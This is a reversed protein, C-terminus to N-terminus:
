TCYVVLIAITFHNLNQTKLTSTGPLPVLAKIKKSNSEKIEM